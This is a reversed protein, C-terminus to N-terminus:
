LPPPPPVGRAPKGPALPEIAGGRLTAPVGRWGPLMVGRPESVGRGGPLRVGPPLGGDAEGPCTRGSQQKQYLTAPEPDANMESRSGSRYYKMLNSSYQNRDWFRTTKLFSGVDSFNCIVNISKNKHFFAQM